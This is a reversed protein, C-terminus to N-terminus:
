LFFLPVKSQFILDKSVSKILLSSLFSQQNPITLILDADKKEAHMIIQRAIEGREIVNIEYEQEIRNVEFYKSIFPLQKDMFDDEIGTSVHVFILKANYDKNWDCISKVVKNDMVSNDYGIVVRKLPKYTINPGILMLPINKKKTIGLSITGFINDVIQYKNRTGLIVLDYGETVEESVQNVVGGMEVKVHIRKLESTTLGIQSVIKNIETNAIAKHAEVSLPVKEKHAPLIPPLVHFIVIETGEKSYNVAYKLANRSHDNYDFPLLIKNYKMPKLTPNSSNDLYIKRPLTPAPSKERFTNISGRVREVFRDLSEEKKKEFLHDNVKLAPVSSLKNKLYEDVSSVESWSFDEKSKNFYAYFHKRLYDLDSTGSGYLTLKILQSPNYKQM